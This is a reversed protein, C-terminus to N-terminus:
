CLGAAFRDLASRVPGGHDLYFALSSKRSTGVRAHGPGSCSVLHCCVALRLFVARMASFEWSALRKGLTHYWVARLLILSPWDSFCCCALSSQRSPGSSLSSGCPERRPKPMPPRPESM